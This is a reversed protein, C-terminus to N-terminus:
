RAPIGIGEDQIAIFIANKALPNNGTEVGAIVTTKSGDQSYNTANELLNIFMCVLDDHKGLLGSLPQVKRTDVTMERKQALPMVAEGAQKLILNLDAIKKPVRREKAEVQSLSLLDTVLRTHSLLLYPVWLVFVLSRIGSCTAAWESLM